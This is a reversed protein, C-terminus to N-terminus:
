MKKMYINCWIGYRIRDVTSRKTERKFIVFLFFNFVPVVGFAFNSVEVEIIKAIHKKKFRLLNKIDLKNNKKKPDAVPENQTGM